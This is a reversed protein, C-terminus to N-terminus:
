PHSKIRVLTSICYSKHFYFINLRSIQLRLTGFYLLYTQWCSCPVLIDNIIVFDRYTGCFLCLSQIIPSPIRLDHYLVNSRSSKPNSIELEPVCRHLLDQRVVIICVIFLEINNSIITNHIPEPQFLLWINIKKHSLAKEYSNLWKFNILKM